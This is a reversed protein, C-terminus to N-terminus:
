GRAILGVITAFLTVMAVACTFVVWVHTRHIVDWGAGTLRYMVTMNTPPDSPLDGSPSVRWEPIAKHALPEAWGCLDCTRLAEDVGENGSTPGLEILWANGPQLIKVIRQRALQKLVRRIARERRFGRFLEM